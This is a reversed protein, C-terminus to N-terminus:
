TGEGRGRVAGDVNSSSSRGVLECRGRVAGDVNSSSSRDTLDGRGGRGFLRIDAVIAPSRLPAPLSQTLSFWRSQSPM